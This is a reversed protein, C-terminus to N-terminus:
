GELFAEAKELEAILDRCQWASTLFLQTNQAVEITVYWPKSADNEQKVSRGENPDIEHVHITVSMTGKSM